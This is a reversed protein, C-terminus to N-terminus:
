KIVVVAEKHSLEGSDAVIRLIYIGFPVYDGNKNKGNWSWSLDINQNQEAYNIFKGNLDFIEVIFETNRNTELSFSINDDKLPSFINGDSFTFSEILLPSPTFPPKRFFTTRDQPAIDMDPNGDGDEDVLINAYNDLIVMQGPNNTMGGLNDPASDPGNTHDGGGTIVSLLKINPFHQLSRESKFFLIEWPIKIEMAGLLNGTNITSSSEVDLIPQIQMTGNEEVKWLQPLDNTDWTGIFFDPNLNYFKFSRQWSNLEAMDVIGYDNYIDIFLIVNNNFSCADVALYLYSQDWTVKIQRIDNYEGWYSDSPSELLNGFSDYLINEDMEFENSEGNIVIRNSLDLETIAFCLPNFLFLLIIKNFNNKM